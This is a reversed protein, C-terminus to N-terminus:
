EASLRLSLISLNTSFLFLRTHVFFTLYSTLFFKASLRKLTFTRSGDEESEEEARTSIQWLSTKHLFLVFLQQSVQQCKLKEREERRGRQRRWYKNDSNSQIERDRERMKVGIASRKRRVSYRELEYNKKKQKM